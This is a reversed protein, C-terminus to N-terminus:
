KNCSKSHPIFHFSIFHDAFVQLTYQHRTSNCLWPAYHVLLWRRKQYVGSPLLRSYYPMRVQLATPPITSAGAGGTVLLVDGTNDEVFIMPTFSSMPRKGKEIRNGSYPPIEERDVNKYLFDYMHNNYIIGTDPGLFKSGFSYFM